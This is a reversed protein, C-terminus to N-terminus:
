AWGAAGGPAARRRQRVPPARQAGHGAEVARQGVARARGEPGLAADLERGAGVGGGRSRTRWANASTPPLAFRAREHARKALAPRRARAALQEVEVRAEVERHEQQPGVLVAAVRELGGLLREVQQGVRLQAHQRPM